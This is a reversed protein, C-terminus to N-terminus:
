YFMLTQTEHFLIIILWEGNEPEQQFHQNKIEKLSLFRIQQASRKNMKIIKQNKPFGLM